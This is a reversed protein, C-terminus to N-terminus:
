LIKNAELTAILRAEAATEPELLGLYARAEGVLYLSGTLCVAGNSNVAQRALDLAKAPSPAVQLSAPTQHLNDLILPMEARRRSHVETLFLPRGELPLLRLIEPINKDRLFGLVWAPTLELGSLTQVLQRIANPTHAADLIVLPAQGAVEFRGPLTAQALGAPDPPGSLGAQHLLTAAALATLANEVQFTGALRSLVQHSEGAPGTAAFRQSFQGAELSVRLSAPQYQWLEGAQHFSAALTHAAAQLWGLVEPTQPSTVALGAQRMIGSKHRVIDALTPGLTAVHELEVPTFVALPSNQAVNVADYTGGMGVEMVALEVGQRAFYLFALITLLEFRSIFGLDPARHAAQWIERFLAAFDARSIMLGNLRIRERYTHLHPGTFLGIKPPPTTKPSYQLLNALFTATSGKGKSGTVIVVPFAAHPSGLRELLPYMRGLGAPYPEHLGQQGAEALARYVDELELRDM